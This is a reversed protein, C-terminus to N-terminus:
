KAKDRRRIPPEPLLTIRHNQYATYIANPLSKAAVLRLPQLAAKLFPYFKGGYGDMAGSYSNPYITPLTGTAEKGKPETETAEQFLYGLWPVAWRVAKESPAGTHPFRGGFPRRKSRVAKSVTKRVTSPLRTPLISSLPVIKGADELPAAVLELCSAVTQLLLSLRKGYLLKKLVPRESPRLSAWLLKTREMELAQDM